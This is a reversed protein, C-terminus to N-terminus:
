PRHRTCISSAGSLWRRVRESTESLEASRPSDARLYMNATPRVEAYRRSAVLRCAGSKSNASHRVASRPAMEGTSPRRGKALTSRTRTMYIEESHLPHAAVRRVACSEM